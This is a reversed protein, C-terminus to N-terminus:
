GRRAPAFPGRHEADGGIYEGHDQEKHRHVAHYVRGQVCMVDGHKM